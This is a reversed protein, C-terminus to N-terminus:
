SVTECAGADFIFGARRRMMHPAHTRWWQAADPNHQELQEIPRGCWQAFLRNAGVILSDAGLLMTENLGRAHLLRDTFIHGRDPDACLQIEDVAVFDAGIELPM